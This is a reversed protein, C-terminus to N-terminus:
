AQLIGGYIGWKLAKYPVTYSTKSGDNFDTAKIVMANQFTKIMRKHLFVCKM